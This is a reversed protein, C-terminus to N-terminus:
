ENVAGRRVYFCGLSSCTNVHVSTLTLMKKKLRVEEDELLDGEEEEDDDDDEDSDNMEQSERDRKLGEDKKNSPHPPSTVEGPETKISKAEAACPSVSLFREGDYSIHNYSGSGALTLSEGKGM